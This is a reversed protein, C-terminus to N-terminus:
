VCAVNITQGDRRYRIGYDNGIGGPDTWTFTDADITAAWSGNRRAQYSSAGVDNWTLVVDDGQVFAQCTLELQAVTVTDCAVDTRNGDAFARLTYTFTGAGPNDTYTNANEVDALWSGDRRPSVRDWVGDWTLTVQQGDVVAQCDVPIPDVTVVGCDVDTRTGDVFARIDYTHTGTGPTDTTSTANEVTALFGGDRRVTVRSWDGTWSITVQQGAVTAQCAPANPLVTVTGCTADTSVGNVFGRATYARDGFPPADTLSTGNDVNAIFVDDRFVTVRDWRDANWSITVQEGNVVAACTLTPMGITATCEATQTVAGANVAEIVYRYTGPAVDSDTYTTAGQVSAVFTDAGVPGRRVNYRDSGTDTWTITVDDVVVGTQCAIRPARNGLVEVEALHLYGTPIQIRIYRLDLEQAIQTLRGQAGTRTIETIGDRARIQDITGNAIPQSSLFISVDAFREECCDTRNWINITQVNSQRGLDLAWWQQSQGNTHTVSGNAFVGDTNGDIARSPVGSFGTSSQTATGQRALNITGGAEVFVTGCEDVHSLGFRNFRLEYTIRQGGLAAVDTFSTGTSSGVFAGNGAINWQNVDGIDTWTVVPRGEADLAVQCAPDGADPNDDLFASRGTNFGNIRDRDHGILLGRDIATLACVCKFANSEPTWTEIGKGNDPDIAGIQRAQFVYGPNFLENRFRSDRTPDAVYINGAPQGNAITRGPYASPASQTTMYRFHGGVYVTDDSVAVSFVSDFIRSVWDPRVSGAMTVPWRVATDCQYGSDAGQNVTVFYSGDPSIELDKIQIGRGSCQGAWHFDQNPDNAVPYLARFSSVRPGGATTLDIIALGPREYTVNRNIDRLERGRHAVVLMQGNPTVDVRAVGYMRGGGVNRGEDVHTEIHFTTDYLGTQADFRALGRVDRFIPPRGPATDYVQTFIGGVYLVGNSLSISLVKADVGGQAFNRDLRGNTVDIKAIRNRTRVQGDTGDDISVFRGGLYVSRGDEAAELDKIEVPKESGPRNALVPRFHDLFQGSDLDYAFIGAQDVIPGNRSTQVRTFNGAVVVANGVQEVDWVEGDLAIPTDTRVEETVIAEAPTPAITLLTAILSLVLLSSATRRLPRRRRGTRNTSATTPNM